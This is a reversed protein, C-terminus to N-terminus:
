RKINMLEQLMTDATTIIRASSQYARQAAIMRIFETAVDVNSIELSNSQINGLGGSGPNGVSATGSGGTEMFYSGVKNLAGPATFNAVLVRALDQQQGNTFYGTIIGSKDIAIGSLLGAPYGDNTTYQVRSDIAFNTVDPTDEGTLDWTITDIPPDGLFNFVVDEDDDNLLAGNDDFILSSLGLATPDAVWTHLGDVTSLSGSIDWKHPDAIFGLNYDADFKLTDDATGAANKVSITVDLDTAGPTNAVILLKGANTISATVNGFVSQIKDLLSQVTLAAITLTDSVAIGSTNTGELQIYDTIQYGGGDAVEYGNIASFATAATIPLAAGTTIAVDGTASPIASIGLNDDVDFKLARATVGTIDTVSLKVELHSPGTNNAIVMLNGTSTISATVDGYVTKIKTLLDQVTTAVGVTLTTAAPVATGSVDTGELTIVDVALYDVYSDIDKILTAATIATGNVNAVDGIASAVTNYENHTWVTNLNYKTGKASYVAQSTSFEDGYAADANLNMGLEFNTTANPQSKMSLLNIAQIGSQETGDIGYMHGQVFYGSLDTMYGDKDLSFNGARTFYNLRDVDQLVFFGGGDIALDTVNSTSQFSGQAFQTSIAAVSVGQGVQMSGSGGSLGQSLMSAFATDSAKYGVTNSNALNNGIVDMQKNCAALGTTGIWLASSM